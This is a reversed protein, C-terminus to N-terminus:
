RKLRRFAGWFEKSYQERARKMDEATVTRETGSGVFSTGENTREVYADKRQRLAENIEEASPISRDVRDVHWHLGVLTAAMGNNRCQDLYQTVLQVVHADIM